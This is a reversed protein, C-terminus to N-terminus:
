QLLKSNDVQDASNKLLALESSLEHMKEQLQEITENKEDVDAKKAEFNDKMCSVSERLEEIVARSSEIMQTLEIVQAHLENNTRRLGENELELSKSFTDSYRPKIKKELVAAKLETCEGELTRIKFVMEDIRSELDVNEMALKQNQEKMEEGKREIRSLKAAHVESISDLESQVDHLSNQYVKRQSIEQHLKQNLIEHNVKLQEYAAALKHYADLTDDLALAQVDIITNDNVSM